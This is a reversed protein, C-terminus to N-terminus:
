KRHSREEEKRKSPSYTIAINRRGRLDLGGSRRLCCSIARCSASSCSLSSRSSFMTVFPRDIGCFFDRACASCAIRALLLSFRYSTESARSPADDNSALRRVRRGRASRVSSRTEVDCVDGPQRTNIQAFGFRFNKLLLQIIHQLVDFFKALCVYTIHLGDRM